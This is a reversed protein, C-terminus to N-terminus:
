QDSVPDSQQAQNNESDPTEEDAEAEDSHDEIVTDFETDFAHTEAHREYDEGFGMLHIVDRMNGLTYDDFNKKFVMLDRMVMLSVQYMDQRMDRDIEQMTKHRKSEFVYLNYCHTLTLRSVIPGRGVDARYKAKALRELDAESWGTCGYADVVYRAIESKQEETMPTKAAYMYSSVIEQLPIETNMPLESLKKWFEPNHPVDEDVMYTPDSMNAVEESAVSEQLAKWVKSRTEQWQPNEDIVRRRLHDEVVAGSFIKNDM